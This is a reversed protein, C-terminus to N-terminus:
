FLTYIFPAVATGQSLILIGGFIILFIIIPILFYKKRNFIFRIIESIFSM